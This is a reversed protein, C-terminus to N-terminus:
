RDDLSDYSVFHYRVRQVHGGEYSWVGPKRIGYTEASRALSRLTKVLKSM